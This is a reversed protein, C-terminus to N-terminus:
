QFVFSCVPVVTLITIWAQLLRNIHECCFSFYIKGNVYPCVSTKKKVEDIQFELGAKEIIYKENDVRSVKNQLKLDVNCICLAVM